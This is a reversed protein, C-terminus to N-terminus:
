VLRWGLVILTGFKSPLNVASLPDEVAGISYRAGESFCELFGGNELLHKSVFKLGNGRKEPARGSIREEFAKKLVENSSVSGDLVRRLSSVIGQGRDAIFVNLTEPTKEFGVVCGACGNWQGLNHDFSNNTLEGLIATLIASDGDSISQSSFFSMWKALRAHVQDRSSCYFFNDAQGDSVDLAGHILFQLVSEKVPM